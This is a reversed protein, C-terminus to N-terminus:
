IKLICILSFFLLLYDFQNHLVINFIIKTFSIDGRIIISRYTYGTSQDNRYYYADNINMLIKNM